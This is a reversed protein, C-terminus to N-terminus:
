PGVLTSTRESLRVVYEDSTEGSSDNSSDDGSNGSTDGVSSEGGRPWRSRDAESLSPFTRWHASPSSFTGPRMYFDLVQELIESMNCCAHLGDHVCLASCEPGAHQKLYSRELDGFSYGDYPAEPHGQLLKFKNAEHLLLGWSAPGCNVESNHMAVVRQPIPLGLTPIRCTAERIAVLAAEQTQERNTLACGTALDLLLRRGDFNAVKDRLNEYWVTTCFHMAEFSGYYDIILVIKAWLEHKIKFPVNLCKGHLVQLFLLFASVDWGHAQIVLPEGSAVNQAETWNGSLLASFYRSATAMTRASVKFTVSSDKIRPPTAVKTRPIRKGGILNQSLPHHEERKWVALPANPDNLCIFLDGNADIEHYTTEEYYHMTDDAFLPEDSSADETVTDEHSSM